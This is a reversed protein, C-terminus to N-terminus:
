GHGVVRKSRTRYHFWIITIAADAMNRAVWCWAAGILGFHRVSLYLLPAFIIIQILHAKANIDVCRHAHIIVVYLSGATFPILGFALIQGVYIGTNSSNSGLWLPFLYPLALAITLAVISMATMSLILLSRFQRIARGEDFQLLSTIHPFAVTTIAGVLTLAQSVFDFPIIYTAVAAASILTGIFWRDLQGMLPYLITTVTFWGGFSLLEKHVEKVDLKSPNPGVSYVQELHKLAICRFAYLGFARSLLISGFLWTLEVSWFSVALPGAFNAVGVAARVLSIGRFNELAENFGRYMASVSQLPVIAALILFAWFVESRLEPSFKLQNQGGLLVLGAVVAAGVLGTQIAIRQAIALLGPVQKQRGSGLRAAVAHTTARGVGLDFLGSVAALGWAMALLGFREAGLIEILSPITALAVALPAGLGLLNWFVNSIRM